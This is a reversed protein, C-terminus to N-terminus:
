SSCHVAFTSVPDEIPHPIRDGVAMINRASVVAVGHLRARYAPTWVPMQSWRSGDWRLVVPEQGGETFRSGVAYATGDALYAVDELESIRGPLSVPIWARGNWHLAIVGHEGFGVAFADSASRAAIGNLGSYLGFDPTPVVHWSSGDWREILNRARINTDDGVVGRLGVAWGDDASLMEVAYLAARYRSRGPTPHLKWSAGDWHMAIPGRLVSHDSWSWEGVAWADDPAVDDVALLASAGRLRNPTPVVTWTEGSLRMVLTRTREFDGSRGVAWASHDSIRAVGSLQSDRPAADHKPSLDTWRTGNWREALPSSVNRIEEGVAIVSSSGVAAARWLVDTSRTGGVNPTSVPRWTGCTSVAGASAPMGALTGLIIAIALGARLSYARPSTQESPCNPAEVTWVEWRQSSSMITHILMRRRSLEHEHQCVAGYAEPHRRRVAPQRDAAVTGDAARTVCRRLARLTQRDPLSRPSGAGAIRSFDLKPGSLVHRRRPDLYHFPCLDCGDLDVWATASNSNTM